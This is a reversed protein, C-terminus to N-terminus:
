PVRSSHHTPHHTGTQLVHVAPLMVTISMLAHQVALSVLFYYSMQHLRRDLGVAACTMASGALVTAPVALLAASLSWGEGGGGDVFTSTTSRGLDRVVESTTVDDAAAAAALSQLQVVCVCVCVCV